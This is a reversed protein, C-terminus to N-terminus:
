FCASRACASCAEPMAEGACAEGKCAGECAEGPECLCPEALGCLIWATLAGGCADLIAESLAVDDGADTCGFDSDPREALCQYFATAAPAGLRGPRADALCTEECAPDACPLSEIKACFAACAAAPSPGPEAGEGTCACSLAAREEEACAGEAIETSGSESCSFRSPEEGLCRMWAEGHAECAPVGARLDECFVGCGEAGDACGRAEAADCYAECNGPGGGSGSSAGGAGGSAPSAGGAGAEGGAGGGSEPRTEGGCAVSALAGIACAALGRGLWGNM